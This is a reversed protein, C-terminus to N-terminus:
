GTESFLLIQNTCFSCQIAGGGNGGRYGGGSDLLSSCITGGDDGGGDDGGGRSGFYQNQPLPSSQGPVSGPIM